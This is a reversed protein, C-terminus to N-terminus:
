MENEGLLRLGVMVDVVIGERAFEERSIKFLKWEEKYWSAWGREISLIIRRLSSPFSKNHLSQVLHTPMIPRDLNPEYTLSRLNNPLHSFITNLIESSVTQPYYLKAQKLSLHDLQSLNVLAELWLTDITSFKPTGLTLHRLNPLDKVMGELMYTPADTIDLSRLSPLNAFAVPWADVLTAKWCLHSLSPLDGEIFSETYGDLNDM